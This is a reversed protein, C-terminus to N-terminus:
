KQGFDVPLPKVIQVQNTNIKFFFEFDNAPQTTLSVCKVHVIGFVNQHKESTEKEFSRAVQYYTLWAKSHGWDWLKIVVRGDPARQFKYKIFLPLTVVITFCLM